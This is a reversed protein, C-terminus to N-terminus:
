SSCSYHSIGGMHVYIDLKPQYFKQAIAESQEDCPHAVLAQLEHVFAFDGEQAAQYAPAVHWERVIYKPNVQLM